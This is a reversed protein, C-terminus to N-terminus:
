QQRYPIQCYSIGRTPSAGQKDLFLKLSNMAINDHATPGLYVHDLVLPREGDPLFQFAVYPVLMSTGERFLVAAELYDTIVPSVLRWEEEEQFSPHKLVAAIRLLDSEIRQFAQRSGGEDPEDDGALQEVTDVVQAILRRQDQPDYICRGIRFGRQGACRLVYDPDFGLSVGKGAGAYGRWQSLLNGNARFSAGFLMHGNTIRHKVWDLFRNLLLPRAHGAAIRQGVERGILDATHKLEASDNMYRVDSAWLSRSQVIGLLGKFTTYHYLTERPVEAYLRTAIDSIM